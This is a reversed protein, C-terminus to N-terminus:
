EFTKPKKFFFFRILIGSISSSEFILQDMEDILEKKEQQIISGISQTKKPCSKTNSENNFKLFVSIQETTPLM